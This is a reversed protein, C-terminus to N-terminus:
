HSHCCVAHLESATPQLQRKSTRPHKEGVSDSCCIRFFVSSSAQAFNLIESQVRLRNLQKYNTHQLPPIGTQGVQACVVAFRAHVCTVCFRFQPPGVFSFNPNIRSFISRSSPHCGPKYCNLRKTHPLTNNGSTHKYKM